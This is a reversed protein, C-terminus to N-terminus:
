TSLLQARGTKPKGLIGQSSTEIMLSARGARRLAEANPPAPETNVNVPTAATQQVKKPGGFITSM